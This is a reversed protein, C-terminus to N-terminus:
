RLERVRMLRSRGLAAEGVSKMPVKQITILQPGLFLTQLITPGLHSSLLQSSDRLAKSTLRDGRSETELESDEEKILRSLDKSWCTTECHHTLDGTISTSVLLVTREIVSWTAVLMSLASKGATQDQSHALVSFM